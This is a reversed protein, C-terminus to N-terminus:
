LWVRLLQSAVIGGAFFSATAVLSGPQFRACGALGHSSTCGGAMSAGFGVLIGGTIPLALRLSDSQVAGEFAEGLGWELSFANLSWASLFGGLAMSGLFIFGTSLPLRGAAAGSVKAPGPSVTADQADGFEALTAALLAEDFDGEAFAAEEKRSIEDERWSLGRSIIGSVGMLHNTLFPYALAVFGLALAGLPWSWYTGGSM